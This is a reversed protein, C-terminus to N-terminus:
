GDGHVVVLQESVAAVDQKVFDADFALFFQKAGVREDDAAATQASGGQGIEGCRADAPQGDGVGVGYVVGVELALNGEGFGVDASGFGQDHFATQFVDVALGADGRQGFFKGFRAQGFEHAGGVDDEVAAVVEGGALGDVAGGDGGARRQNGAGGHAEVALDGHVTGVQGVGGAIGAQEVAVGVVVAGAGQEAYEGRQDADDAGGLGGFCQFDQCADARRCVALQHSVVRQRPFPMGEPQLAAGSAADAAASASRCVM